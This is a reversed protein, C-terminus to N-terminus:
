PYRPATLGRLPTTSTATAGAGPRSGATVSSGELSAGLEAVKRNTTSTASARASIADLTASQADSVGTFAGVLEWQQNARRLEFQSDEQDWLRGGVHLLAGQEHHRMVMYTDCAATLGYTGSIDDIPDDGRAKRTHHIVDIVLGARDKAIGHLGSM